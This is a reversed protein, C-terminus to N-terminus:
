GDITCIRVVRAALRKERERITKLSHHQACLCQGNRTDLPAGGDRLEIIHDAYMVRNTIGCGGVECQRNARALIFRRWAKHESTLYHQNTQHGYSGNKDPNGSVSRGSLMKIKLPPHRLGM